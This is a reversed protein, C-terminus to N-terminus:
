DYENGGGFWSFGSVNYRLSIWDRLGRFSQVKMTNLLRKSVRINKTAMRGLSWKRLDDLLEDHLCRSNELIVSPFLGRCMIERLFESFDDNQPLIRREEDLRIKELLLNFYELDRGQHPIFRWMKPSPSVKKVRLDILQRFIRDVVYIKVHFAVSYHTPFMKIVDPFGALPTAYIIDALTIVTDDGTSMPYRMQVLNSLAELIRLNKSNKIQGFTISNIDHSGPKIVTLSTTSMQIEM